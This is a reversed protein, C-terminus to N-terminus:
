RGIAERSRAIARGLPIFGRCACLTPRKAPIASQRPRVLTPHKFPALPRNPRAAHADHEHILGSLHDRQHNETPTEAPTPLPGAPPQRSLARHPRQQNYHEVYTDPMHRPYRRGRIILRDLRETRITQAVREAYGNAKPTRFPTQRIDVRDAQL